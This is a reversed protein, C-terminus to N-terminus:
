YKMPVGAVASVDPDIFWEAPDYDPTNVSLRYDAPTTTKNLVNSM